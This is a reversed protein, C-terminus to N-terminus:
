STDTALAARAAIVMASHDLDEGGDVLTQLYNKATAAAKLKEEVGELQSFACDLDKLHTAARGHPSFDGSAIRPGMIQLIESDALGGQMASFLSEAKIGLAEAYAVGEGLGAITCAVIIQNALKAAQGTGVEGMHTVRGVAGLANKALDLDSKACGLFISMTANEAGKPGGSVPADVFRIAQPITASIFRAEDPTNTGMDALLSGAKICDAAGNEILVQRVAPGDHLFMLIIDADQVAECPSSALPVTKALDDLHPGLTRNWGVVDYGNKALRAAVRSGMIGLGLVCYKESM